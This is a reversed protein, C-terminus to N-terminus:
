RNHNKEHANEKKNPNFVEEKEVSGSGCCQMEENGGLGCDARRPFGAGAARDKRAGETRREEELPRCIGKDWLLTTAFYAWGASGM